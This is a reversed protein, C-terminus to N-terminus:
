PSSAPVLSSQNFHNFNNTHNFNNVNTSIVVSTSIVPSTSIISPNFHNALNFNNVHNLNNNHKLNNTLNFHNTRNFYYYCGPQIPRQNISTRVHYLSMISSPNFAQVFSPSRVIRSVFPYEWLPFVIWLLSLTGHLCVAARTRVSLKFFFDTQHILARLSVEVCLFRYSPRLFVTHQPIPVWLQEEYAETVDRGTGVSSQKFNNVESM